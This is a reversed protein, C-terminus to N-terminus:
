LLGFAQQNFSDLGEMLGSADVDRRFRDFSALLTRRDSLRDITVGNLVMDSKAEAEPRFSRQGVGLFGPNSANYPRHQMRPELGIFAPVTPDVAGQLKSIISGFSPWGGPPQNRSLHGTMCQFDSHEDVAGVVSRIPVLKDMMAAMRPLHECI